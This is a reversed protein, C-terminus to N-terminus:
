STTLCKRALSAVSSSLTLLLRPALNSRSRWRGVRPNLSRSAMCLRTLLRVFSADLVWVPSPCTLPRPLRQHLKPDVVSSLVREMLETKKIKELADEATSRVAGWSSWLLSTAATAGSFLRNLPVITELLSEPAEDDSNVDDSAPATGEAATVTVEASISPEASMISLLQFRSSACVCIDAFTCACCM